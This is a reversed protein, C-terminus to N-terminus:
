ILITDSCFYGILRNEDATISSIGMVSIERNNSLLEELIKLMEEDQADFSKEQHVSFSSSNSVVSSDSDRVLPFTDFKASSCIEDMSLTSRIAALDIVDENQTIKPTETTTSEIKPSNIDKGERPLEAYLM